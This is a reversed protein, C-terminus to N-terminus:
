KNGSSDMAALVARLTEEQVGQSIRLRRGDRLVLELGAPMSAGDESVLAFSATGGSSAPKNREQRRAKLKRQWWYFQSERLRRQRCFERISMGSRAADGITRQWYRQKEVDHDKGNM